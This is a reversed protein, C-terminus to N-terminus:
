WVFSTVARAFQCAVGHLVAAATVHVPL